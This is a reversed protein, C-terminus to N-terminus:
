VNKSFKHCGRWDDPHGEHDGMEHEGITIESRDYFFEGRSLAEAEGPVTSTLAYSTGNDGCLPTDRPVLATGGTFLNVVTFPAEVFKHGRSPVGFIGEDYWVMRKKSLDWIREDGM